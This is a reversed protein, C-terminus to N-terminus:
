ALATRLVSDDRGDTSKDQNRKLIVLVVIVVVTAVAAAVGVSVGLILGSSVSGGSSKASSREKGQAQARAPVEVRPRVPEPTDTWTKELGSQTSVMEPPIGLTLWISINGIDFQERNFYENSVVVHGDPMFMAVEPTIGEDPIEVGCEEFFGEPDDYYRLVSMPIDVGGLKANIVTKGPQSKEDLIWQCPYSGDFIAIEWIPGEWMKVVSRNGTAKVLQRSVSSLLVGEMTEDDMDEDYRSRDSVGMESQFGVLSYGQYARPSRRGFPPTWVPWELDPDGAGRVEFSTMCNASEIDDCHAIIQCEAEEYPTFSFHGTVEDRDVVTTNIVNSANCVFELRNTDKRTFMVPVKGASVAATIIDPDLDWTLRDHPLNIYSPCLWYFRNRPPTFLWLRNDRGKDILTVGEELGFGDRPLLTWGSYISSNAAANELCGIPRGYQGWVMGASHCTGNFTTSYIYAPNFTITEAESAERRVPIILQSGFRSRGSQIPLLYSTASVKVYDTLPCAGPMDLEMAVHGENNTETFTLVAYKEDKDFQVVTPRTRDAQYLCAVIGRHYTELPQELEFVVHPYDRALDLAFKVNYPKSGTRVATFDAETLSFTAMQNLKPYTTTYSLTEFDGKGDGWRAVIEVELGQCGKMDIFAYSNMKLTDGFVDKNAGAKGEKTGSLFAAEGRPLRYLNIGPTMEVATKFLKVKVGVQDRVNFTGDTMTKGNELSQSLLPAAYGDGYEPSVAHRIVCLKAGPKSPPRFSIFQIGEGAFEMGPEARTCRVMVGNSGGVGDGDEFDDSFDGVRFDHDKQYKWTGVGFAVTSSKVSVRLTSQELPEGLILRKTPRVVPGGLMDFKFSPYTLKEYDKDLLNNSVVMYNDYLFRFNYEFMEGAHCFFKKTQEWAWEIGEKILRAIENVKDIFAEFEAGLGLAGFVARTADTLSSLAKKGDSVIVNVVKKVFGKICSLFSDLHRSTVCTSKFDIETIQVIWSENMKPMLVSSLGENSCDSSFLCFPAIYFRPHLPIVLEQEELLTFGLVTLGDWRAVLSLQFGVEGFFYPSTCLESNGGFTLVVELRGGLRVATAAIVVEAKLMLGAEASAKIILRLNTFFEAADFQDLNDYAYPGLDFVHPGSKCGKTYLKFGTETLLSYRRIYCLPQGFILSIDAIRAEMYGFLGVEFKLGAFLNVTPLSWIPIEKDPSKWTIFNQNHSLNMGFEAGATFRFFFGVGFDSLGDFKYTFGLTVGIGAGIVSADELEDDDDDDDDSENSDLQDQGYELTDNWLLGNWDDDRRKEEETKEQEKPKEKEEEKKGNADDKKEEENKKGNAEDEQEKKANAAKEKEDKMAKRVDKVADVITGILDRISKARGEDGDWNVGLTLTCQGGKWGDGDTITKCTLYKSIEKYLDVADAVMNKPSYHQRTPQPGEPLNYGGMHLHTFLSLPHKRRVQYFTVDDDRAILARVEYCESTEPDSFVRRFELEPSITALISRGVAYGSVGFSQGGSLRRTLKFNACGWIYRGPELVEPDVELLKRHKAMTRARAALDALDPSLDSLISAFLAFVLM